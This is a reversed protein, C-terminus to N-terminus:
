KIEKTLKQLIKDYERNKYMTEMAIEKAPSDWYRLTNGQHFDFSIPPNDRNKMFNFKLKRSCLPPKRVKRAQAQAEETLLDDNDENEDAKLEGQDRNEQSVVGLGLSIDLPDNKHFAQATHKMTVAEVGDAQKTAQTATWMSVKYKRSIEGLAENIRTLLTDERTNKTITIGSPDIRDLWNVYVARCKSVDKGADRVSIMWNEVAHDIDAVTFRRASMDVISMYDFYKYEPNIILSAREAYEDPWEELPEKILHAPIHGMSVIMRHKIRRGSMELTLFLCRIGRQIASVMFNILSTTKGVGPCATVMGTEGLGLGGSTYLDLKYLGTPTRNMAIEKRTIFFEPNGLVNDVVIDQHHTIDSNIKAIQATYENINQGQKIREMYAENTQAVRIFKLYDPLMTRYYEVNLPTRAIAELVYCLAEREEPMLRTVTTTNRELMFFIHTQLLNFDPIRQFKAYYDRLTELILQCPTLEFDSLRLYSTRRFFDNDQALQAILGIQFDKNFEQGM